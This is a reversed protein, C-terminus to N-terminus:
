SWYRIAGDTGGTVVKSPEQPHWECCTIAGKESAKIKHWMKTTKWDWFCVYGGSDGSMLFQGDPSFAVDVAYGANNHGRFSDKKRARHLKGEGTSAYPIITNDGSQMAINKGNPHLQARNIPFMLPDSINQVPVPIGYEWIRIVKDDSTSAFRRQQDYFTLSNIAQLHRDYEQVQEGTRTDWQLIKHDSMGSIFEHNGTSSPNFNTCHPVKGSSYRSVVQGTETDWLKMQRDYSASLFHAGDNAFQLDTTAFRHGSYSRLLERDHYTDFINIVPESSGSLLLHGAKPFFRLISTKAKSQEKWTHILKKPIYNKISGVEKHLDIDLDQPVHMYTRGQYDYETSGQFVSTEQPVSKLESANEATIAPPSNGDEAEEDVYEEDSKLPREEAEYFNEKSYEAWPGKYVGEGVVVTASGRDSRKRKAARGDGRPRHFSPGINDTHPDDAVFSGVLDGIGSPNRAYGLSQFSRHQTRFASDPYVVEEAWGTLANKRRSSLADAPKFPNLPGNRPGDLHSYPVNQALSAEASRKAITQM